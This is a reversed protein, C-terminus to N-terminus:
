GAPVECALRVLVGSLEHIPMRRRERGEDGAMVSILNEGSAASMFPVQFPKGPDM